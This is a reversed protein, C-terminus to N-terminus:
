GGSVTQGDALPGGVTDAAKSGSSTLNQGFQGDRSVDASPVGYVSGFLHEVSPLHRPRHQVHLLRRVDRLPQHAADRDHDAEDSGITLFVDFCERQAPGALVGVNAQGIRAVPEGGNPEIGRVDLPPLACAKVTGTARPGHSGNPFNQAHDAHM